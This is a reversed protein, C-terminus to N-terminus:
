RAEVTLVFCVVENDLWVGLRMVVESGGAFSQM